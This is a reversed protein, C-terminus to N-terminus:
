IFDTVEDEGCKVRFKIGDYMEKIRKVMNDSMVKRRLKYWLAEGHVSTSAKEFRCIVLM